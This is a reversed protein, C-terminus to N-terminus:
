RGSRKDRKKRTGLFHSRGEAVAKSVKGLARQAQGAASLEAHREPRTFTKVGRRGRERAKRKHWAPSDYGLHSQGKM